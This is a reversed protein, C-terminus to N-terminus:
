TSIISTNGRISGDCNRGQDVHGYMINATLSDRSWLLDGEGIIDLLRLLVVLDVNVAEVPAAESAKETEHTWRVERLKISM